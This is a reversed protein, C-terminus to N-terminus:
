RSRLFNADQTRRNRYYLGVRGKVSSSVAYVETDPAPHPLTNRCPCNFTVHVRLKLLSHQIIIDVLEQTEPVKIEKLADCLM